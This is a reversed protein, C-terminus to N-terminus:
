SRPLENPDEPCENRPQAAKAEDWGDVKPEAEDIIM